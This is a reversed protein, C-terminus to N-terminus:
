KYGMEELPLCLAETEFFEIIDAFDFKEARKDAGKGVGVFYAYKYFPRGDPRWWAPGKFSMFEPNEMLAQYVKAPETSQALQIGRLLEKMATYAYVGMVDPVEGYQELWAKRIRASNEYTEPDKDKLNKLDHYLWMGMTVGDLAEPPIGMALSAVIANFFIKTHKSLGLEHAQKLIEIADTGWQGMQVVDPKSEIIKLLYSTFDPTGVPTWIFELKIDPHKEYVQKLGVAVGHGYAYDPLCAIVYKPKFTKIVYEATMRGIADVAGQTTLFYPAKNEKRFVKEEVSNGAIVLAQGDLAQENLATTVHAFTGVVMLRIGEEIFERYRRVAVDPKTEDDRVVAEVKYVKDGIKIGGADNVEKVALLAGDKQVKGTPAGVGTLSYMVGVKIVDEAFVAGWLLVVALVVCGFVGLRWKRM